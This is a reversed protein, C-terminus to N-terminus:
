IRSASLIPEKRGAAVLPAIPEHAAIRLYSCNIPFFMASPLRTCAFSATGLRDLNLGTVPIRLVNINVSYMLDDVPMTPPSYGRMPELLDNELPSVTAFKLVLVCSPLGCKRSRTDVRVGSLATIMVLFDDTRLYHGQYTFTCYLTRTIILLDTHMIVQVVWSYSIPQAYRAMTFKFACCRRRRTEPGLSDEIVTDDFGYSRTFVFRSVFSLYLVKYCWHVLCM